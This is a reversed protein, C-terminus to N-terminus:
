AAERCEYCGDAKVSHNGADHAMWMAEDADEAAQKACFRCEDPDAVDWHLNEHESYAEDSAQEMAADYARDERSAM